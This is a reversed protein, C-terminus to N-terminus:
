QAIWKQVSAEAEAAEDEDLPRLHEYAPLAALERSFDARAADSREIETPGAWVVRIRERPVRARLYPDRERAFRERTWQGGLRNYCDRESCGTVMVGDALGRSIIFDILSPPAMAVCPLVVRGEAEGGAAGYACALTLVRGQGQLASATAIVEARLAALPRDPLDIGTILDSTRRFPTSSPCSGM